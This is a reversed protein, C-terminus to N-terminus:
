KIVTAGSVGFYPCDGGDGTVWRKFLGTIRNGESGWDLCTDPDVDHTDRMVATGQGRPLRYGTVQFEAFGVVHYALGGPNGGQLKGCGTGEYVDYVIITMPIEGDIYADLGAGLKPPTTMLGATSAVWDNVKIRGSLCTLPQLNYEQCVASCDDPLGIDKCSHGQGKPDTKNQWSWNLWGFGSAGDAGGAPGGGTVCPGVECDADVTCVVQTDGTCRNNSKCPGLSCESDETCFVTDNEACVSGGQDGGHDDAGANPGDFINYCPSPPVGSAPIFTDTLVAIPALCIADCVGGEILVAAEADINIGDLGMVGSFFSPAVSQVIAEVGRAQWPIIGVGGIVIDTGGQSLRSGDEALYFGTVNDNISNAPLGDSDEAGNREAFDNMTTKVYTEPIFKGQLSGGNQNMQYALERAGALAAADAANQDTRRHVYANSLDVAIAAFIVLALLAAAVIIISQGQQSEHKTENL